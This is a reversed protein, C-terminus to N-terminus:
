HIGIVSSGRLSFHHSGIENKDPLQSLSDMQFLSVTCRHVPFDWRADINEPDVYLMRGDSNEGWIFTTFANSKINLGSYDGAFYFRCHLNGGSAWKNMYFSEGDAVDQWDSLVCNNWDPLASGSGYQSTFSISGGTMNRVAVSKCPSCIVAFVIIVVIGCLILCCLRWRRSDSKKEAISRLRAKRAEEDTARLQQVETAAKAVAEQRLCWGQEFTLDPYLYRKNNYKPNCELFAKILGLIEDDPLWKVPEKLQRGTKPCNTPINTAKNLEIYILLENREVLALTEIIRVPNRMLKYASLPCQFATPVKCGEIDEENSSDDEDESIAAILSRPRRSAPTLNMSSSVSSCNVIDECYNNTASGEGINNTQLPSYGERSSSADTNISHNSSTSFFKAITDVYHRCHHHHHQLQQNLLSSQPGSPQQNFPMVKDRDKQYKGHSVSGDFKSGVHDEKQNHGVDGTDGIDEIVGGQTLLPATVNDYSDHNM